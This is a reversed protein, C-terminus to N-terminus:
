LVKVTRSLRVKGGAKETKENQKSNLSQSERYDVMLDAKMLKKPLKKEMKKM